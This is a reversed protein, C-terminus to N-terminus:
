GITVGGGFLMPSGGVPIPVYTIELTISSTLWWEDGTGGPDSNVFDYYGTMGLKTYGTTSIAALGTANLTIEQAGTLGNKNINGYDTMTMSTHDATGLTTSPSAPNTPVVYMTHNAFGSNNAGVSFKYKASTISLALSGLSVTNFMAFTRYLNRNAGSSGCGNYTDTDVSSAAARAAAWTKGDALQTITRGTAGTASFTIVAM